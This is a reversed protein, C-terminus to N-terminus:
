FIDESKIRQLELQALREMLRDKDRAAVIEEDTLAMTKQFEEHSIQGAYFSVADLRRAASAVEKVNTGDLYIAIDEPM